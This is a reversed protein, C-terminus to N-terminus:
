LKMKGKECAWIIFYGRVDRGSLNIEQYYDAGKCRISQERFSPRIIQGSPISLFFFCDKANIAKRPDDEGDLVSSLKLVTKRKQSTSQAEFNNFLM